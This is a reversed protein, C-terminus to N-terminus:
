LAFKQSKWTSSDFNTLNRMDLKFHSTLEEEFEAKNGMTMVCLEGRFKLSMFKRSEIFPTLLLVLKSVELQELSFKGFEEHWRQFCLDTERRVKYWYHIGDFMVGRYKWLEFMIYKPWFCDM